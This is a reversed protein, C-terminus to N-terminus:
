CRLIPPRRIAPNKTAKAVILQWFGAEDGTLGGVSFDELASTGATALGPEEATLGVVDAGEKGTILTVLGARRLGLRGISEHIM